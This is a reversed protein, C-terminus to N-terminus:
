VIDHVVGISKLTDSFRRLRLIRICQLGEILVIASLNLHGDDWGNVDGMTFKETTPQGM